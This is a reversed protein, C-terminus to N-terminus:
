NVSKKECVRKIYFILMLLALPILIVTSIIKASAIQEKVQYGDEVIEFSDSHLDAEGGHEKCARHFIGTIKVTDGIYKYNGYNIVKDAESKNLWIGIANTGDNINIWSYNGRDMSEGIVEGQVTVEQGDLEKTNEILENIDILSEAKANAPVLSTLLLIAILTEIFKRM